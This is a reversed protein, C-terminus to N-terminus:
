VDDMYRITNYYRIEIGSYKYEGPIKLDLNVPQPALFTLPMPIHMVLNDPDRNYAIIRRGGDAAATELQMVQQILLDGGGSVTTFNNNLVMDNLMEGTYQNYISTWGQFVSPPVLLTNAFDNQMTAYYVAALLNNVDALVATFASTPTWAAAPKLITVNANNILGTLDGDEGVLAVKNMHRQYATMAISAKDAPLPINLMAAQRLEETSYHYGVGGVVVPVVKMGYSTDVYPIDNANNSIRKGQGVADMTRYAFSTVGPGGETSVSVLKQYLVPLYKREYIKAEVVALQSILFAMGGFNTSADGVLHSIMPSAFELERRRKEVYQNMM